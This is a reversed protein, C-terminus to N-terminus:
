AILAGVRLHLGLKVLLTALPKLVVALQVDLGVVVKVAVDIVGQLAAEVKVLLPRLTAIDAELVVVVCDLSKLIEEILGEIRLALAHVDVEVGALVKLQTQLKVVLAVLQPILVKAEAVTITDLALFLM